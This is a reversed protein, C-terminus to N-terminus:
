SDSSPEMVPGSCDHPIAAYERRHLFFLDGTLRMTTPQWRAGDVGAQLLNAGLRGFDIADCKHPRQTRPGVITEVQVELSEECIGPDDHGVVVISVGCARVEGRRELVRPHQREVPEAVHTAARDPLAIAGGQFGHFLQVRWIRRGYDVAPNCFQEAKLGPAFFM